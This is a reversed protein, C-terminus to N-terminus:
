KTTRNQLHRLEADMPDNFDYLEQVSASHVSYRFFSNWRRQTAGRFVKDFESRQGDLEIRRENGVQGYIAFTTQPLIACSFL